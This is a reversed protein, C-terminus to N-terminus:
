KIYNVIVIIVYMIIYLYIIVTYITEYPTSDMKVFAMLALGM